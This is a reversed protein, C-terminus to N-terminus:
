SNVFVCVLAINKYWRAKDKEESTVKQVPKGM